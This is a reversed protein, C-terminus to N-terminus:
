LVIPLDKNTRVTLTSPKMIGNQAEGFVKLNIITKFQYQVSLFGVKKSTSFM